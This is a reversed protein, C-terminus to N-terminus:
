TSGKIDWAARFLANAAPILSGYRGQGVPVDPENAMHLATLGHMMAIFLDRAQAVPIGLVLNGQELGKTYPHHAPESM